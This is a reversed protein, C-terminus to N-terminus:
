VPDNYNSNIFQFDETINFIYSGNTSINRRLKKTKKAFHVDKEKTDIMPISLVIICINIMIMSYKVM